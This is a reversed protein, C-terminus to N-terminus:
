PSPQASTSVMQKLFEALTEIRNGIKTDLTMVFTINLGWTFTTAVMAAADLDAAPDCDQAAGLVETKWYEYWDSTAAMVTEIADPHRRVSEMALLRVVKPDATFSRFEARAQKRVRDELMAPLRPSSPTIRQEAEQLTARVLEEKSPFHYYLGQVSVGAALALERMSADTSSHEAFVKLAADIIRRSTPVESSDAAQETM